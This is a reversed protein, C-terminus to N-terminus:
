DLLHLELIWIHENHTLESSKIYISGM